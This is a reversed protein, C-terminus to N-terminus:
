STPIIKIEELLSDYTGDHIDNNIEVYYDQPLYRNMLETGLGRVSTRVLVHAPANIGPYGLSASVFTLRAYSDPERLTYGEIKRQTRGDAICDFCTNVRGVVKKDIWRQLRANKANAQEELSSELGRLVEAAHPVYVGQLNRSWIAM